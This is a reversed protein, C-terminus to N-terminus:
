IGYLGEMEFDAKVVCHTTYVITKINDLIKRSLFCKKFIISMDIYLCFGTGDIDGCIWNVIYEM